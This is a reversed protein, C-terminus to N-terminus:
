FIDPWIINVAISLYNLLEENFRLFIDFHFSLHGNCFHSNAPIHLYKFQKLHRTLLKTQIYENHCFFSFIILSYIEQTNKQPM